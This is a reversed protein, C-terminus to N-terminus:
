EQGQKWGLDAELASTWEGAMRAHTKMSPHWDAGFGGSYDGHHSKFEIFKVRPDGARNAEDVIKKLYGRITSLASKSASFSDSLMPGLACYIMADPYNKRVRGIFDLYAKTWGEEDPNGGACDNTGLNILVADPVQTSFDWDSDAQMPLSRGYLDVISDKPWLRKGSWAICTFDAGFNRATIAGYTKWNNETGPLFHEYQSKAENGYGASISDGIVELRRKPPSAPLVEAGENLQFGLFGLNGFFPETAKILTVTHEGSPLGSAIRFIGGPSAESLVGCDNGDVLTQVRCKGNLNLKANVDSGRFRLTIASGSWSATAGGNTKNFVFRGSYHLAPNNAAVEVPLAEVSAPDSPEAAHLLLPLSISISVSVMLRWIAALVSTTM